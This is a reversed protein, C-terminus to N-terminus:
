YNRKKQERGKLFKFKRYGEPVGREKSVPFSALNM